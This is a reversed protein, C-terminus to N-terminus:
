VHPELSTQNLPSVTRQEKVLEPSLVAVELFEMERPFRKQCTGSARGEIFFVDLFM